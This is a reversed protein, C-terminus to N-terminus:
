HEIREAIRQTELVLIANHPMPTQPNIFRDVLDAAHLTKAHCHHTWVADNSGATGPCLLNACVDLLEISIESQGLLSGFGVLFDLLESAAPDLLM